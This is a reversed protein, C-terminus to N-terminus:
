AMCSCLNRLINAPSAVIAPLPRKDESSVLSANAVAPMVCIWVSNFLPAPKDSIASNKFGQQIKPLINALHISSKLVYILDYKLM